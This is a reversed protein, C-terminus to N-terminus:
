FQNLAANVIWVHECSGFGPIEMLESGSEMITKWLKMIDKYELKKKESLFCNKGHKKRSSFCV